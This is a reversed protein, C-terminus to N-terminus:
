MIKALDDKSKICIVEDNETKRMYISGFSSWIFKYKKEKKLDNAMRFLSKSDRCLNENIFVKQFEGEPNGRNEKMSEVEKLKKKNRYVANRVKRSRFKVLLPRLKKISGDKNKLSGIRYAEVIDNPTISPEIKQAVSLALEECNENIKCQLGVIELNDQLQENQVSLFKAELDKKEKKDEMMRKRMDANERKLEANSKELAILREMLIENNKKLDDFCDGVFEVSKRHEKGEDKMEIMAKRLDDKMEKVQKKMAEMAETFMQKSIM